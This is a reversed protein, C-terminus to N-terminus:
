PKVEHEEFAGSEDLVWARCERNILDPYGVIVYYYAPWARDLDFASPIGQATPHSHYFGLLDLGAAAAHTEATMQACPDISFRRVREAAVPWINELPVAHDVVGGDANRRGILLGCAEEPRRRDCDAFLVTRVADPLILPM